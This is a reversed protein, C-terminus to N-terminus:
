TWQGGTAEWASGEKTRAQRTWAFGPCRESAGEDSSHPQHGQGQRPGEHAQSQGESKSADDLIDLRDKAVALLYELTKIIGRLLFPSCDAIARLAATGWTPLAVSQRAAGRNGRQTKGM